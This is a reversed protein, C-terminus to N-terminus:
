GTMENEIHAIEQEVADESPLELSGFDETEGAEQMANFEAEHKKEVIAEKAKANQRAAEDAEGQARISKTDAQAACIEWERTNRKDRKPPREGCAAIVPDVGDAAAAGSAAEAGGEGPEGGGNAADTETGDGEDTNAEDPPTGVASAEKTKQELGEPTTPAKKPDAGPPISMYANIRETATGFPAWRVAIMQQVNRPIRSPGSIEGNPTVDVKNFLDPDITVAGSLPLGDQVAQDNLAKEQVSQYRTDVRPLIGPDTTAEEIPPTVDDYYDRQPKYNGIYQKVMSVIEGMADKAKDQVQLMKTRAVKNVSKTDTPIGTTPKNWEDAYASYIEDDLVPMTPELARPRRMSYRRFFDSQTIPPDKPIGMAALAKLGGMAKAVLGKKKIGQQEEKMDKYEKPDMFAEEDPGNLYRKQMDNKACEVSAKSRVHGTLCPNRYELFKKEFKNQDGERMEPDNKESNNGNLGTSNWDTNPKLYKAPEPAYPRNTNDRNHFFKFAHFSTRRSPLRKAISLRRRFSGRRSAGGVGHDGGAGAGDSAGAPGAIELFNSPQTSRVWQTSYWGRHRNLDMESSPMDPWWKGYGTMAAQGVVFQLKPGRVAGNRDASQGMPRLWEWFKQAGERQLWWSAPPSAVGLKSKGSRETVWYMPHGPFMFYGQRDNLTDAGGYARDGVEFGHPKAMMGPDPYKEALASLWMRQNKFLELYKETETKAMMDPSLSAIDNGKKVADDKLDKFKELTPRKPGFLADGPESWLNM